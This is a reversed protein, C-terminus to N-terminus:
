QKSLIDAHQSWRLAKVNIVIAVKSGYIKGFIKIKRVCIKCTKAYCRTKLVKKKFRTEQEPCWHKIKGVWIQM